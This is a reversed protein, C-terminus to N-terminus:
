CLARARMGKVCGFIRLSTRTLDVHRTLANKTRFGYCCDTAATRSATPLSCGKRLSGFRIDGGRERSDFNGGRRLSSTASQVEASTDNTRAIGFASAKTPMQKRLRSLLPAVGGANTVNAVVIRPPTELDESIPRTQTGM